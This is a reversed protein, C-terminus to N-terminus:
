EATEAGPGCPSGMSRTPTTLYVLVSVCNWSLGLCRASLM